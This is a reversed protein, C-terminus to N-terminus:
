DQGNSEKPLVYVTIMDYDVCIRRIDYETLDVDEPRTSGKLTEIWRYPDGLSILVEHLTSVPIRNDKILVKM